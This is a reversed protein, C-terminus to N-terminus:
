SPNQYQCSAGGQWPCGHERLWKIVELHGGEAAAASTTEGWPYDHEDRLWQLVELHGGRAAQLCCDDEENEYEDWECGNAHARKLVELHGGEAAASLVYCSWHCDPSDPEDDKRAWKLVELHGGAAANTCTDQGM